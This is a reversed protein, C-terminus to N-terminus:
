LDTEKLTGTSGPSTKIGAVVQGSFVFGMTFWGYSVSLVTSLEQFSEPVGINLLLKQILNSSIFQFFVSLFDLIIRSADIDAM